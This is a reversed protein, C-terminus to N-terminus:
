NPYCGRLVVLQIHLEELHLKEFARVVGEEIAIPQQLRIVEHCPLRSARLLYQSWLLASAWGFAPEHNM